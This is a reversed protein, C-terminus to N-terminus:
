LGELLERVRREIDDRVRRAKDPGGAKPDPVAWDEVRDLVSPPLAKPDCGMVIIRDAREAFTLDIDKPVHRSIDIGLEAMLQVAVPHVSGGPKLGGSRVLVGKPARHRAFGEAIQSRFSNGECLFLLRKVM